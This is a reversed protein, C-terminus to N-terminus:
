VIEQVACPFESTNNKKAHYRLWANHHQELLGKLRQQKARAEDNKKSIGLKNRERFSSSEKQFEREEEESRVPKTKYVVFCDKPLFISSNKKHDKKEEFNESSLSSQKSDANKMTSLDPNSGSLEGGSGLM